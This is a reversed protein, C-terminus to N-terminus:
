VAVEGGVGLLRECRRRYASAILAAAGFDLCMRLCVVCSARLGGSYEGPTHTHSLSLGFLTFLWFVDRRRGSGGAEMKMRHQHVNVIRSGMKVFRIQAHPNFRLSTTMVKGPGSRSSPGRAVAPLTRSPRPRRPMPSFLASGRENPSM